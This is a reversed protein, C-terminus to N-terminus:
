VKKEETLASAAGARAGERDVDVGSARPRRGHECRPASLSPAWVRMLVLVFLMVSCIILATVIARESPKILSPVAISAM